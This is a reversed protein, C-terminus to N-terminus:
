NVNLTILMFEWVKPQYISFKINNKKAFIHAYSNEICHITIDLNDFAHEDIFEIEDYILIDKLEDCGSFARGIHKLSKPLYVKKIRKCNKFAIDGIYKLGNGIFTIEELSSCDMFAGTNITHTSEPVTISKLKKCFYFSFPSISTTGEKIKVISSYKEKVSYLTSDYYVVGTAQSNYWATGDFAGEGIIANRNQIEIHLLNSCNAFALSGILTVSPPIIVEEISKNGAFAQASINTVFSPITVKAEGGSYKTLRDLNHILFGNFCTISKAKIDSPPSINNERLLNEYNIIGHEILNSDKSDNKFFNIIKQIIKRM